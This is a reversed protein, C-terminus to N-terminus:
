KVKTIIEALLRDVVEPQEISSSHGSRDIEVFKSNSIRQSIEQSAAISLVTDELGGAVITPVDIQSLENLISKATLVAEIGHVISSSAISQMHKIWVTQLEPKSQLTSDGFLSSLVQKKMFLTNWFMQLTLVANLGTLSPVKKGAGSAANTNLLLLGKVIEPHHIAIRLSTMGGLSSGCWIASKIGLKQVLDLYDEAMQELSIPDKLVSSAGHGHIDIAVIRARNSFSNIQRDFATHDLFLGHIMVIPLGQGIDVYGLTAGSKVRIKDITKM